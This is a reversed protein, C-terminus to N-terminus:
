VDTYTVTASITGNTSIGVLSDTPDLLLKETDFTLTDTADISAEKIITNSITPTGGSSVAHITILDANTAHTNCLFLCTVARIKGAAGQVITTNNNGVQISGLAM